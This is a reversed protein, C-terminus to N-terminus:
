IFRKGDDGQHLWLPAHVSDEVRKGKSRNKFLLKGLPEDEDETEEAQGGRTAYLDRDLDQDSSSILDEQQSGSETDSNKVYIKRLRASQVDKM